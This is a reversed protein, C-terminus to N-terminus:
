LEEDDQAMISVAGITNKCCALLLGFRDRGNIKWYDIAIDLLWGEPILGDFFPFLVNSRYPEERKPLTLSISKSESLSLYKED